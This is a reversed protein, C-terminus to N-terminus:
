SSLPFLTLAVVVSMAIALLGRRTDLEETENRCPIEPEKQFFQTYLAYFIFIGSEDLGFLGCIALTLIAAGQVIRSLSRGFFAVSIRGGDTNGIPLLSLANTMLGIFGAIAFPHLKVLSITPDPSNLLGAGLLYEIIGSALTSSRLLSAPLSPLQQLSTSDTFATMELGIYLLTLSTVIGCAPGAMAFDFLSKINKPPSKIPTIAGTLGLSFSPILTPTGIKIGDKLAVIEHGVEHALQTCLVGAAIPMSLDILWNFGEGNQAAKSIQDVVDMNMSFAGTSPSIDYNTLLLVPEDEEDFDADEQRISPTPDNMDDHHIKNTGRIIYGGPVAEPKGTPDFTTRGLIDSCFSAVCEENLAEKRTVEPLLNQVFNNLKTFKEDVFIEAFAGDDLDNKNLTTQFTFTDNTQLLRNDSMLKDIVVTANINAGREVGVSKAMADQLPQPLKSFAEIADNRREQGLQTSEGTPDLPSGDQKANKGPARQESEAENKLSPNLRTSLLTIDRSIDERNEPNSDIQAVKAELKSLRDITLRLEERQAELRTREALAKMQSAQTAVDEISAIPAYSSDNDDIAATLVVNNRVSRSSLLRCPTNINIHQFAFLPLVSLSLLLIIRSPAM